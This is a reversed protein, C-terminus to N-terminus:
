WLVEATCRHDEVRFVEIYQTADPDAAGFDVPRDLLAIVIVDAALEYDQLYPLAVQECLLEFDDLAQEFTLDGTQKGIRPALFRFRVWDEAGVEDVLVEFLEVSQGSPVTWRAAHAIPAAPGRAALANHFASITM